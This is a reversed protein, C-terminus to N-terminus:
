FFSTLKLGPWKLHWLGVDNCKEAMQYSEFYRAWWCVPHWTRIKHWHQGETNSQWVHLNRHRNCTQRPFLWNLAASVNDNTGIGAKLIGAFLDAVSFCRHIEKEIHVIDWIHSLVCIECGWNNHKLPWIINNEQWSSHWTGLIQCLHSITLYVAKVTDTEETFSGCLLVWIVGAQTPCM